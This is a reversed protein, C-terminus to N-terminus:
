LAQEKFYTCEELMYDYQQELTLADYGQNEVIYRRFRQIADKIGRHLNVREQHARQKHTLQNKMIGGIVM